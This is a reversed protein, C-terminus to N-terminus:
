RCAPWPLIQTHIFLRLEAPDQKVREWMQTHVVGVQILIGWPGVVDQEPSSNPEDRGQPARVGLIRIRREAGYCPSPGQKQEGCVPLSCVWSGSRSHSTCFVAAGMSCVYCQPKQAVRGGGARWFSLVSFALPKVSWFPCHAAWFASFHFLLFLCTM